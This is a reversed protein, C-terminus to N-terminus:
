YGRGPVARGHMEDLRGLAFASLNRALILDAQQETVPANSSCHATLRVNAHGYIWHGQPPPEPDFVDLSARGVTGDELAQRLADSDIVAGRGVNILHVGRRLKAFAAKDLMHHTQATLPTAVVLVDAAALVADLSAPEVGDSSPPKPTRTVGMVRMGFALARRAVAEGISGYGVIGLTKGFLSGQAHGRWDERSSVWAQPLQKTADLMAALVYEAIAIAQAGRSVTVLPVDFLWTSVGDMGTSRLHVWRLRGPWGPPVMSQKRARHVISPATILASAGEPVAWPREAPLEVLEIREAIGADLAARIPALALQSAIVIRGNPKTKPVSSLGVMRPSPM